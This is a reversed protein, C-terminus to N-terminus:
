ATDGAKPKNVKERLEEFHKQANLVASIAANMEDDTVTEGHDIMSLTEYATRLGMGIEILNRKAVAMDTGGRM